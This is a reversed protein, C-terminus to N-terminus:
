PKTVEKRDYRKTINKALTCNEWGPNCACYTYVYSRRDEMDKFDIRGADCYLKLKQEWRFYPCCFYTPM